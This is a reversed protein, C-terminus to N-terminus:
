LIRRAINQGFEVIEIALNAKRRKERASYLMQARTDTLRNKVINEKYEMPLMTSNFWRYATRTNVGHKMLFQDIEKELETLVKCKGRYFRNIRSFMILIDRSSFSRQFKKEMTERVIDAKHCMPMKRRVLKKM